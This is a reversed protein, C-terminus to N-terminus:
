IAEPHPSSMLIVLSITILLCSTEAGRGSRQPPSPSWLHPCWFQFLFAELFSGPQHVCQHAPFPASPSPLPTRCVHVCVYVCVCVQGKWETAGSDCGKYYVMIPVERATWNSPSQVEVTPFGSEIEPWLVLIGGSVALFFPCYYSYLVKSLETLWGRGVDSLESTHNM